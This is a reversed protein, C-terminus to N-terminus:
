NVSVGQIRELFKHYEALKELEEDSANEVLMRIEAPGDGEANTIASKRPADLGLLKRQDALAERMERLFRSDGALKQVVKERLDSDAGRDTGAVTRITRTTISRQFAEWAQQYIHELRALQRGKVRRLRNVHWEDNALYSDVTQIIRSVRQQSIGYRDAIPQQGEGRCVHRHYVEFMWETPKLSTKLRGRSM